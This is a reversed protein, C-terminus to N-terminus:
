ARADRPLHPFISFCGVHLQLDTYLAANKLSIAAQSGLLQSATVGDPTFVFPALNNELYLAGIPEAQKVIAPV